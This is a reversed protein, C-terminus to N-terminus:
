LYTKIAEISSEDLEVACRALLLAGESCGTNEYARVLRINDTMKASVTDIMIQAVHKDSADTVTKLEMDLMTGMKQLTDDAAHEKCLTSLNTHAKSLLASLKEIHCTTEAVLEKDNLKQIACILTSKESRINKCLKELLEKTHQDKM